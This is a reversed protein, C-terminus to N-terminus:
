SACNLLDLAADAARHGSSVASEITGPLGTDTWDGALLFGPLATKTGPRAPQGPALSFTARLERVVTARPFEAQRAAPVASRLDDIALGILATNSQSAIDPAGSVVLSLHGTENGFVQGKDFVWHMSRGTLGVFPIDMVRRDPWLNVTIIPSSATSDAARCVAILETPVDDPFLGRLAHWPVTSIVVAAQVPGGRARFRYGDETQELLAEAGVRVAGGRAVIFEHAPLAYLEQLPRIPLGIGSDSPDDGTLLALARVFTPAAAVAPAQNLAALALPEWLLKRLRPTQGHRQLWGDVTEGPSAAVVGTVGCAERRALRLPGVLRLAACRDRFGLADWEVLGAFLNLPPSLPPCVLRTRRGDRDVSTVDLNAQLRLMHAAGIRCLFRRTERYCGFLVHQGNDVLEGTVGDRYSTARGGLRRAAELVIVRRGRDALAAAASLGAFGGGVVVVEYRASDDSAVTTVTEGDDQAM